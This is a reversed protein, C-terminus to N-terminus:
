PSGGAAERRMAEGARLAAGDARRARLESATVRMLMLPLVCKLAVPHELIRTLQALDAIFQRVNAREPDSVVAEGYAVNLIAAALDREALSFSFLEDLLPSRSRREVVFPFLPEVPSFWVTPTAESLM